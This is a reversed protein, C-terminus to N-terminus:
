YFGIKLDGLMKCHVIHQADAYTAVFPIFNQLLYKFEDDLKIFYINSVMIYDFIKTGTKEMFRLRQLFQKKTININESLAGLQVYDDLNTVNKKAIDCLASNYIYSNHRIVIIKEPHMIKLQSSTYGIGDIEDIEKLLVLGDLLRIM